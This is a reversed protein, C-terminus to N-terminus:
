KVAYCMDPQTNVLYMLSGVLHRYITTEVVEGLTSDEKRWKGALRTEMPKSSEMCFRKLIANAYKSQSVFLDGDGQWVEMGLFYHMLGM